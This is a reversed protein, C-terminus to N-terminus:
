ARPGSGPQLITDGMRAFMRGVMLPDPQGHQNRKYTQRMAEFDDALEVECAVTEWGLDGAARWGHEGDIIEYADGSRRVVVPKPVRGLRRMEAVLQQYEDDALRNPNWDNPRLSSVPLEVVSLTSNNPM